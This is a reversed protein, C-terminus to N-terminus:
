FLEKHKSLIIIGWWNQLVITSEGNKFADYYCEPKEESRMFREGKLPMMFKGMCDEETTKWLCIEGDM